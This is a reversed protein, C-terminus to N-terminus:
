FVSKLNLPWKGMVLMWLIQGIVMIFHLTTFLFAHTAPVARTGLERGVLSLSLALVRSLSLHSRLVGHGQVGELTNSAKGRANRKSVLLAGLGSTSRPRWRM